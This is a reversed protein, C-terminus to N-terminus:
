SPKQALENLYLTFRDYLLSATSLSMQFNLNLPITSRFFIKELTKSLFILKQTNFLPKTGIWESITNLSWLTAFCHQFEDPLKFEVTADISFFDKRANELSLDTKSYQLPTKYGNMWIYHLPIVFYRFLAWIRRSTWIWRYRLDFFFDKRANESLSFDNKKFM